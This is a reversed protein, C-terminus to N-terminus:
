FNLSFLYLPHPSLAFSGPDLKSSCRVACPGSNVPCQSNAQGNDYTILEEYIADANQMLTVGVPIFIIGIIIFVAIVTRPTM